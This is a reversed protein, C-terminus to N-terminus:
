LRLTVFICLPFQTQIAGHYKQTMKEKCHRCFLNVVVQSQKCLAKRQTLNSIM